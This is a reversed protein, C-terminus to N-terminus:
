PYSISFSNQTERITKLDKWRDNLMEKNNRIEDSSIYKLLVSVHFGQAVEKREEAKHIVAGTLTKCQTHTHTNKNQKTKNKHKKNTNPLIGLHLIHVEWIPFFSEWM